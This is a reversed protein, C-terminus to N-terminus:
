LRVLVEVEVWEAFGERLWKDSAGRSGGGFEYQQTHTLEQALLAVRFLWGVEEISRDNILVREYGSVASLTTATQRAFDAPYGDAELASQFAARDPYFYLSARLPPLGLEGTMIAAISVLAEDYTAIWEGRTPQGRAGEVSLIRPWNGATACAAIMSATVIVGARGSWRPKGGAGPRDAQGPM